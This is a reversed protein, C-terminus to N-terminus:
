KKKKKDYKGKQYHDYYTEMIKWDVGLGIADNNEFKKAFKVRNKMEGDAAVMKEGVAVAWIDADIKEALVGKPHSNNASEDRPAGKWKKDSIFVDGINNLAEYCYTMLFLDKNLDESSGEEINKEFKAYRERYYKWADKYDQYKKDAGMVLSVKKQEAPYKSDVEKMAPCKFEGNRLPLNNLIDSNEQAFAAAAFFMCVALSKSIIRKM